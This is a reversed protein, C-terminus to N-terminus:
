AARNGLLFVVGQVAALAMALCWLRVFARRNHQIEDGTWDTPRILMAIVRYILVLVAGLLWGQPLALGTWQGTVNLPRDHTAPMFPHSCIWYVTAGELIIALMMAVFFAFAELRRLM